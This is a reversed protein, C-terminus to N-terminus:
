ADVANVLRSRIDKISKGEVLSTANDGIMNVSKVIDNDTVLMCYASLVSYFACNFTDHQVKRMSHNMGFYKEIEHKLEGGDHFGNFDSAESCILNAQGKYFGLYVWHEGGGRSKYTQTNMVGFICLSPYRRLADYIEHITLTMGDIFFCDCGHAGITSCAFIMYCVDCVDKDTMNTNTSNRGLKKLIQNVDCHPVLNHTIMFDRLSGVHYKRFKSWDLEVDENIPEANNRQVTWLDPSDFEKYATLTLVDLYANITFNNLWDNIHKLRQIRGFVHTLKITLDDKYPKCGLLIYVLLKENTKCKLEKKLVEFLEVDDRTKNIADKMIRRIDDGYQKNENKASTNEVLYYRIVGGIIRKDSDHLINDGRLLLRIEDTDFASDDINVVM